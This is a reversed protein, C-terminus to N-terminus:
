ATCISTAAPTIKEGTAASWDCTKQDMALGAGSLATPVCYTHTALSDTAAGWQQSSATNCRSKGNNSVSYFCHHSMMNDWRVPFGNAASVAPDSFSAAGNGIYACQGDKEYVDDCAPKGM